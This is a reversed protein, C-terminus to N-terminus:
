ERQHRKEEVKKNYSQKMLRKMLHDKEETLKSISKWNTWMMKLRHKWTCDCVPLSVCTCVSGCHHVYTYVSLCVCLCTLARILTCVHTYVCVYVFICVHLCTDMVCVCVCMCMSVYMYVHIYGNCLYMYICVYVYICVWVRLCECMCAYLAYCLLEAFGRSLTCACLTFYISVHLCVCVHLCMRVCVHPCVGM